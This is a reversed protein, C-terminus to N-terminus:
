IYLNLKFCFKWKSGLADDLLTKADSVSQVLKESWDETPTWGLDIARQFERCLSEYARLRKSSPLFQPKSWSGIRQGNSFRHRSGEWVISICYREKSVRVVRISQFNEM